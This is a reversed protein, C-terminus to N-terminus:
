LKILIDLSDTFFISLVVPIRGDKFQVLWGIMRKEDQEHCIPDVRRQSCLFLKKLLIPPNPQKTKKSLIEVKKRYFNKRAKTNFFYFSEYPNRKINLTSKYAPLNIQM